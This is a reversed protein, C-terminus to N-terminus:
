PSGRHIARAILEKGTGSAGRIVVNTRSASLQGILKFIEIMRPDHGVLTESAGETEKPERPEDRQSRADLDEFVRRIVTRLQQLELPKVLFDVAGERMATSVTPLDDYATMLIVAVDPARQRLLRLLDLGDMGPMRVDTLVVDAPREALLALAREADEATRVDSTETKLAGPLSALIRRDDDVILISKATAQTM